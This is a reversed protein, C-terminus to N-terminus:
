FFFFGLVLLGAGDGNVKGIAGWARARGASKEYDSFMSFFFLSGFFLLNYQVLWLSLSLLM